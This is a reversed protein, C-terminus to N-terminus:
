YLFFDFHGSFLAFDQDTMDGAVLHIFRNYHTDFAKFAVPSIAFHHAEM